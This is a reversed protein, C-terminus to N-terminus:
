SLSFYCGSKFDGGHHHHIGATTQLLIVCTCHSALGLHVTPLQVHMIYAQAYCTLTGAFM